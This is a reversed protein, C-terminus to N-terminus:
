FGNPDRAGVDLEGFEVPAGVAVETIAGGDRGIAEGHEGAVEVCDKGSGEAIGADFRINMGFFDQEAHAEFHIEVGVHAGHAQEIGREARQFAHFRFIDIEDHDAFIGFADVGVCSSNELLSSGVFDGRLFVDVGALSDLADDAVGEVIAFAMGLQVAPPAAAHEHAIFGVGHGM